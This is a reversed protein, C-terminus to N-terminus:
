KESTFYNYIAICLNMFILVILVTDRYAFSDFADNTLVIVALFTILGFVIQLIGILKNSMNDGKTILYM